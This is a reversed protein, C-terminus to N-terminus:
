HADESAPVLINRLRAVIDDDNGVAVDISATEFAATQGTLRIVCEFDDSGAAPSEYILWERFDKLEGTEDPEPGEGLAHAVIADRISLYEPPVRYVIPM